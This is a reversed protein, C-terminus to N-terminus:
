AFTIAMFCCRPPSACEVCHSSSYPVVGDSAGPEPPDRLDAIISHSRVSPDIGLDCLAMLLPHGAALEGLSTPNHVRFGPVFSDPKNQALVAERAERYRSARDCVRIGLKRILGSALTVATISPTAIFVIRRVEPLREYCFVERLLRCDEPPGAIKDIPRECVTQWLRSGSSQVLMKALIGGLSHGVVVTRDFAVETGNPDFMRRARRLSQRLLHASFPISDGSAYSFTWFQYKGRIVPDAELAEIVPDWQHPFGWLGHILVVPVKGPEFPRRMGLGAPHHLRRVDRPPGGNSPDVCTAVSPLDGAMSFPALMMALVAAKFGNQVESTLGETRPPRDNTNAHFTRMNHNTVLTVDHIRTTLSSPVQHVRRVIATGTGGIQRSKLAKSLSIQTPLSGNLVVPHDRVGQSWPRKLAVRACFQGVFSARGRTSIKEAHDRINWCRPLLAVVHVFATHGLRTPCLEGRHEVLADSVTKM